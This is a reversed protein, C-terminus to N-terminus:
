LFPNVGEGNVTIGTVVLEGRNAVITTNGGAYPFIRFDLTTVTLDFTEDITYETLTQSDINQTNVVTAGVRWAVNPNVNNAVGRKFDFSARIRTIKTSAFDRKVRARNQWNAQAQAYQSVWGNGSQYVGLQPSADTMVVFGGNNVTFDFTHEWFEPCECLLDWSDNEGRSLVQLVVQYRRYAGAWVQTEFYDALIQGGLKAWGMAMLHMFYVMLSNTPTGALILSSLFDMLTEINLTSEFLTVYADWINDLTMVCDDPLACFIACAIEDRLEDTFLAMYLDIVSEQIYNILSFVADLSIEDAGTVLSLSGILEFNNTDQEFLELFDVVDNHLQDVFGVCMNFRRDDCNGAPVIVPQLFGSKNNEIIKTIEDIFTTNNTIINVIEDINEEICLVVAECDTCDCAVTLRSELEDTFTTIEEQTPSDTWRTLWRLFQLQSVLALVQGQTLKVCYEGDAGNIQSWSTAIIKGNNRKGNIYSM